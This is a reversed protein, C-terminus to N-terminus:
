ANAGDEREQRPDTLDFLRELQSLENASLTPVGGQQRLKEELRQVTQATGVLHRRIEELLTLLDTRHRRHWDFHHAL